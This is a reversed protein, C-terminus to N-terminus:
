PAEERTDPEATSAAERRLRCLPCEDGLHAGHQFCSALIPPVVQPESAPEAQPAEAAVEACYDCRMSAPWSSQCVCGKPRLVRRQDSWKYVWEERGPDFYFDHTLPRDKYEPPAEAPSAPSAALAAGILDLEHQDRRCLPCDDGTIEGKHREAKRIAVHVAVRKLAERTDTLCREGAEWKARYEEGKAFAANRQRLLYDADGAHREKMEHMTREAERAAALEARLRTNEAEAMAARAAQRESGLRTDALEARLDALAGDIAEDMARECAAVNAGGDVMLATIYGHIRDRITQETTRPEATV